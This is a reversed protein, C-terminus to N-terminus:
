KWAKVYLFIRFKIKTQYLNSVKKSRIQVNEFTTKNITSL